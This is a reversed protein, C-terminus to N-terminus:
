RKGPTGMTNKPMTSEDVPTNDTQTFQGGAPVWFVKATKGQGRTGSERVEIRSPDINQKGEGTTLYKKANYARYASLDQGTIQEEDESYGVIVVKGDPEQQLRLAVTDLTAKCQNDVRARRRGDSYDCQTILQEGIVQAQPPPPPAEVAVQVSCSGQLDHIDTVNLSINITGPPAGTTDLTATSTFSGPESGAKTEGERLSGASASFNRSKLRQQDPSNGQVSINVPQGPKVSTPDASCNLVPARPTKVTFTASCTAPPLKKMKPDTVSSTVTYSGPSLTSNDIKASAGEGNVTGGTANWAYALTHKPHFDSPTVTATVPGEWPLVESPSVSCSAKPPIPPKGGLNVAVGALARFSNQNKALNSSIDTYLYDVEFPRIAFKDKVAIDLGFGTVAAFGSNNPAKATTSLNHIVTAAISTYAGGVMAHAYPRFIGYRKGLQAGFLYTFLDGSANGTAGAPVLDNGPPVFVPKTNSAYGQFEAKLGFMRNVNYVFSGGGGNLNWSQGFHIGAVTFDVAQYHVYSYDFVIEYKPHEQSWAAQGLLLVAAMIIAAKLKM